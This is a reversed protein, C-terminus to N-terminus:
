YPVIQDDKSHMVLVPLTVKKLDARFDNQSVAVIGDYHAKADGTMGQRWWNAISAESSEAGPKNFGYVPGSPLARYFESRNGALRAQLDDFVEKPVGGPNDDTKVM